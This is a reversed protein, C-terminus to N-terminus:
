SKQPELCPLEIPLCTDVSCEQMPGHKCLTWLSHAKVRGISGSKPEPLAFRKQITEFPFSVSVVTFLTPPPLTGWKEPLFCLPSHPKGSLDQVIEVDQPVVQAASALLSPDMESSSLRVIGPMLLNMDLILKAKERNKKHSGSRTVAAEWHLMANMKPSRHLRYLQSIM